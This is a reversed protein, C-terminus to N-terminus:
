ARASNLCIRCNQIALQVQEDRGEGVGTAEVALCTEVGNLTTSKISGCKISNVGITVPETM